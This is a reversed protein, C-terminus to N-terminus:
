DDTKEASQYRPPQGAQALLENVERKLELVRGERDLMVAHWRRLESLQEAMRREARKRDTIDHIVSHLLDKGGAEIRSTYVAVDRVSGDALSHQLESFFREGARVTEIQARAQDPPLTNIDWIKMRSLQEQPWGYFEAAAKNGAVIRGDGPDILLKVAAHEQFLSRFLTESQQLAAQTQQQLESLRQLDAIWRQNEESLRAEELELAAHHALTQLLDIDEDSFQYLGETSGVILVGLSQDQLVLPLYVLSRLGRQVSARREADTLEAERSDALVVPSGTQLARTIHPHDVLPAARLDEPLEVLLAPTTGGLHLMGERLLYIAASDLSALRAAGDTITQLLQPTEHLGAMMEGIQLLLSLRESKWRLQEETRARETIDSVVHVAGALRGEGDLIPDITAEFRRDHAKLEVSERRLNYRMRPFPCDPIPETAGHVIEWCHLGTRFGGPHRAFCEAAHNFRVVRQDADLIWIADRLANFVAQWEEVSLGNQEAVNGSRTAEARPSGKGEDGLSGTQMRYPFDCPAREGCPGATDERM